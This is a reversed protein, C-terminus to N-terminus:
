ASHASRKHLREIARITKDHKEIARETNGAIRVLEESLTDQLRAHAESRSKWVPLFTTMVRWIVAFVFVLVAFPVGVREAITLLEPMM